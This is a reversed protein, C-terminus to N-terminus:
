PGDPTPFSFGQSAVWVISSSSIIREFAMWGMYASVWSHDNGNTICCTGPPIAGDDDVDFAALSDAYFVGRNWYLSDGSIEWFRFTANSYWTNFANYWSSPTEFTELGEGYQEIWMAGSDPYAIWLSNCVGWIATGGCLAWDTAANLRTPNAEFWSRILRARALTHDRWDTRNRYIAHPYMGGIGLGQAAVNVVSNFSLPNAMVWSACSDAYWNWSTDQYAERYKAAAEFGWGCNHMAYYGGGEEQWAPWEEGYTWADRINQAYRATDGTWIAYQSWVRIAEQTNDTQIISFDAGVEGERMGGFENSPGLYQMEALFDCLHRYKLFYPVEDLSGPRVRSGTELNRPHLAPDFEVRAAALEEETWYPTGLVTAAGILVVILTAFASTLSKM